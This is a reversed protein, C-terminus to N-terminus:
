KGKKVKVGFKKLMKGFTSVMAAAPVTPTAVASTGGSKSTSLYVINVFTILITLSITIINILNILDKEDADVSKISVLTTIFLTILSSMIIIQVIFNLSFAM